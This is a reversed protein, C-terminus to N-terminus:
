LANCLLPLQGITAQAKTAAPIHKAVRQRAIPTARVVYFVSSSIVNRNNRARIEPM